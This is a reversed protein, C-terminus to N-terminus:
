HMGFNTNYKILSSTLLRDVQAITYYNVIDSILIESLMPLMGM